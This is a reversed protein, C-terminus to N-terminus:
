LKKDGGVDTEVWQENYSQFVLWMEQNNIIQALWVRLYSLINSFSYHIIMARVCSITSFPPCSVFLTIQNAKAGMM